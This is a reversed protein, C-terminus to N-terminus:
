STRSPSLRHQGRWGQWLLLLLAPLIGLFDAVLDAAEPQRYPTYSQLWEILAGVVLAIGAGALPAFRRFYSVNELSKGWLYCGVTFAAAHLLKDGFTQMLWGQQHTPGLALALVGATWLGAAASWFTSSFFM